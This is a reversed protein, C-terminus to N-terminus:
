IRMFESSFGDNHVQYIVFEGRKAGPMGPSGEPMGAMAIGKIDPREDLLKNIAEAPIHGEVFYDGIMTTHCSELYSPIGFKEKYKSIDYEEVIQVDLGSKSKFYNTWVSCCGCSSSKYVTVEGEFDDFAELKPTSNVLLFIALIILALIGITFYTKKGMKFKMEQNSCCDAM